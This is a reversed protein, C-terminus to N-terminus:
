IAKLLTYLRIHLIKSLAYLETRSFTDNNLRRYFDQRAFDPNLGLAKGIKTGSIKYKKMAERVLTRFEPLNNQIM